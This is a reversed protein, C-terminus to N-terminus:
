NWHFNSGWLVSFLISQTKYILRVAKRWMHKQREKFTVTLEARALIVSHCCQTPQSKRGTFTTSLDPTGQHISDLRYLRLSVKTWLASQDHQTDSGRWPQVSKIEQHIEQRLTRHAWSWHRQKKSIIHNQQSWQPEVVLESQHLQLEVSKEAPFPHLPLPVSTTICLQTHFCIQPYGQMETGEEVTVQSWLSHTKSWFLDCIRPQFHAEESIADPSLM